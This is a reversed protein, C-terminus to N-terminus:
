KEKNKWSSLINIGTNLNNYIQNQSIFAKQADIILGASLNSYIRNQNVSVNKLNYLAIGGRLNNYISNNKFNVDTIDALWMGNRLNGYVENGEVIITINKQETNISRLSIGARKNNCLINSKIVIPQDHSVLDLGGVGSGNQYCFNDLICPRAYERIGIGPADKETDKAQPFRNNFIENDQILSFSNSGNAIGPGFNDYIINNQVIPKAATELPPGMSPGLGTLLIGGGKGKSQNQCVINNQVTPSCGRVEVLFLKDIAKTPLHRITFGDLKMPANTEKQFSVLYDPITLKSGDIITQLARQLVMKEGPGNVWKEGESGNDSVLSVGAKIVIREYYVGPRVRITDGFEAEEIAEQITPLDEPVFIDSGLSITPLFFLFLLFLVNQILKKNKMFIISHHIKFDYHVGTSVIM